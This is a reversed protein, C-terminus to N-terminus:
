ALLPLTVHGHAHASLRKFLVRWAAAGVFVATGEDADVGAVARAPGVVELRSSIAHRSNAMEGGQQQRSRHQGYRRRRGGEGPTGGPMLEHAAQGGFGEGLFQRREQARRRGRGLDGDQPALEVARLAGAIWVVGFAVSSMEYM